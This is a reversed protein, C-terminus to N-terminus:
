PPLRALPLRAVAGHRGGSLFAHALHGDLSWSTVM